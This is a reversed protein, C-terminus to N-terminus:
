SAFVVGGTLLVSVTPLWKWVSHVTEEPQWMHLQRGLSIWSPRLNWAMGTLAVWAATGTVAGLAWQTNTQALDLILGLSILGLAYIGKPALRSDKSWLMAIALVALSAIVSWGWPGAMTAFSAGLWATLSGFGVLIGAMVVGCVLAVCTLPLGRRASGPSDPDPVAVLLKFSLWGTAMVSVLCVLQQAINYVLDASWATTSGIWYILMAGMGLSTTLYAISERRTYLAHAAAIAAIAIVLGTSWWAGLPDLLVGRVACALTLRGLVASFWIAITASESKPLSTRRFYFAVGTAAIAAAAWGGGLVHFSLWSAQMNLSTCTAAALPMALMAFGLAALVYRHKSSDSNRGLYGKALGMALASLLIAVYSPWDGLTYVAAPLADPVAFIATAPWLSIIAGLLSVFFLQVPLADRSELDGVIGDNAPSPETAPWWKRGSRVILQWAIALSAAVIATQQLMVALGTADIWQGGLWTPIVTSLVTAALLAGCAPLALWSSRERSAVIALGIGLLVLPACWTMAPGLVDFWSGPAPLTLNGRGVSITAGGVIWVLPAAAVLTLSGFALWHVPAHSPDLGRRPGMTDRVSRTLFMMVRLTISVIWGRVALLLAGAVFYLGLGWALVAAAQSADYQGAVLLPVSVLFVPWLLSEERRPTRCTVIGAALAVSGLVIWGGYGALFPLSPWADLLPNSRAMGLQEQVPGWCDGVALMVVAIMLGYVLLREVSIEVTRALSAVAPLKRATLRVAHCLVAWLSLAALQIEVHLPALWSGNWWGQHQCLATTLYSIGLTAVVQAPALWARSRLVLCSMLWLAAVWLIYGGHLAFRAELVVLSLLLAVGSGVVATAILPAIFGSGLAAAGRGQEGRRGVFNAGIAVASVLSAYTLLVTAWLQRTGFSFTELMAAGAPHWVMAHAIALLVLGSAALTTQTRRMVAAAGVAAVADIALVLTAWELGERTWFGTYLASAFGLIALISAATLYAASEQVQKRRSLVWAGAAAAGALGTLLMASRGLLLFEVLTRGPVAELLSAPMWPRELALLGAAALCIAAVTHLVPFKCARGIATLALFNVMGMVILLDPRPWALGLVGFMSSAAVLAIATGSTRWGAASTKRFVMLGLALVAAAAMSLWPALVALAGDVTKGRWVLLVMAPALAFGAMGAVMYIQGARRSTWQKMSGALVLTRGMGLLFALVPIAALWALSAISTGATTTTRDIVLQAASAGMIGVALWRGAWPVLERCASYTMGGFCGLGLIIATWYLPDGISRQQSLLVAALFNLPVLLMVITLLGRSTSRLRWRRLTYMGAGYIAATGLMFVLAPFYPIFETLTKRLSMVLGVASGVILIGSALEGWRINRSELFAQLMASLPRHETLEVAPAANKVVPLAAAPERAASSLAALPALAIEAEVISVDAYSSVTAAPSVTAMPRTVAPREIPVPAPQAVPRHVPATAPSQLLQFLREHLAADIKQARWLREIQRIAALREWDDTMSQADNHVITRLMSAGCRPCNARGGLVLNGCVRCHTRETSNEQIASDAVRGGGFLWALGVWIGHGVAVLLALLFALFCFVGLLDSM